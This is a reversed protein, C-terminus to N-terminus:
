RPNDKHGDKRCDDQHPMHNDHHDCRVALIMADADVARTTCKELPDTGKTMMAVATVQVAATAASIPEMANEMMDDEMM